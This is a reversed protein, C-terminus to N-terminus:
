LPTSGSNSDFKGFCRKFWEAFADAVPGQTSLYRKTIATGMPKGPEEQWALWTHLIAKSTRAEPFLREEKPIGAVALQARVFTRDGESVLSGVFDELQGPSRNDPM